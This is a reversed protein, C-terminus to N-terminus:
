EKSEVDAWWPKEEDQIYKEAELAVWEQKYVSRIAQAYHYPCLWQGRYLILQSAPWLHTLARTGDEKLIYGCKSCWGAYGRPRKKPPGTKKM